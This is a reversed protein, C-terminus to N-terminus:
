KEERQQRNPNELGLRKLLRPIEHKASSKCIFGDANLYESLVQYTRKEYITTFVVKTLPQLSKIKETAEFGNMGRTSADIMVLDPSLEAALALVEPGDRAEGVIRIGRQKQLFEVLDARFSDNDDAVLVTVEHVKRLPVNRGERQGRTKQWDLVAPEGKASGIM